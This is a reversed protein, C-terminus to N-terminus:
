FALFSTPIPFVSLLQQLLIVQIAALPGSVRERLKKVKKSVSLAWQIRYPISQFRSAISNRSLHKEFKPQIDQKFAGLPERILAYHSHLNEILDQSDPKAPLQQIAHIHDLTITLSQLFNVESQYDEVAGGADKLAVRVKNLFLILNLVDGASWGFSMISCLSTSLYYSSRKGFTKKKQTIVSNPTRPKMCGNDVDAAQKVGGSNL